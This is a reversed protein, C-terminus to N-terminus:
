TEQVASHVSAFDCKDEWIKVLVKKWLPPSPSFLLPYSSLFPPALYAACPSLQFVAFGPSVERDQISKNWEAQRKETTM